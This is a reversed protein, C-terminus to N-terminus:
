RLQNGGTLFLGTADRLPRSSAPDNAEGRTAAHIPRVRKVGLGGFVEQYREGAMAGLSSATSIVVIRADPGGALTVFRSLILRDRVKDEAGGIVIVTGDPM